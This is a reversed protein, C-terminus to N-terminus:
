FRILTRGHHERRRTTLLLFGLDLIELRPDLLSSLVQLIALGFALTLQYSRQLLTDLRDDLTDAGFSIEADDEVSGAHLPDGGDILRQIERVNNYM